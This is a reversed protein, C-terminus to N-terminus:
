AQILREPTLQYPAPDIMPERGLLQDVLLHTSAPALVLGNRYHGANVFVNSWEPLAGIFPIGAPSGPRLGAWQHAIQCTALAPLIAEASQQLSALAEEDTSKDFGKEELTSGVLLLGDARPIIYRGDKLVVRQVLGKPAQYAIMQGKVPRVPLQVNLQSLLQAAWAGGCVVIRGAKLSGQSTAVGEVQGSERGGPQIFGSVECHEKLTVQPMAALRAKLAKVLRPNRVSGLTPMWLASDGAMAVGPEKNLVFDAAVRELPKGLQRAWGLAEDADDVNLYLLGKQRYEPDIGTEELLRLALSPYVGESWRSLQSIAADYRWPYLPSVIGGGAWSAEKGCEGREVLTVQQGADALQLATMMGIVGGGIILFDSM